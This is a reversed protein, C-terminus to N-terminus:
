VVDEKDMWWNTSVQAAEMDQCNYIISSYVYPHVYGKSNTNKYEKPLYGTIVPDYALDTKLKKLFKWTEVTAAGSQM